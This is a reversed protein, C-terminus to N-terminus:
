RWEGESRNVNPRSKNNIQSFFENGDGDRFIAMTGWVEKKPEAAPKVGKAKMAEATAFVDDCRFTVSQFGGV